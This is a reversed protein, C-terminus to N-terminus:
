ALARALAESGRELIPEGHSVLVRDVPLPLLLERLAARFEEGGVGKPLWSDPCVRVRGEEAGLLVDGTVLARHEPIWYAVEDRRHAAIAEVGGPLVDELEFPNTVSVELRELAPSHAWVTAGDYRAAVEGASREHWFVTRLVAVPKRAGMVDRDLARWFQEREEPETPALPDILVVADAAEYYVCGVDPQWGDDAGEEPTWDPHRTTWRWLGEAIM